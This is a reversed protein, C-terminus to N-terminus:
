TELLDLDRQPLLIQVELKQLGKTSNDFCGDNTPNHDSPRKSALSYRGKYHNSIVSLKNFLSKLQSGSTYCERDLHDENTPKEHKHLGHHEEIRGKLEFSANSRLPRFNLDDDMVPIIDGSTDRVLQSSEGATVMGRSSANTDSPFSRYSTSFPNSNRVRHLANETWSTNRRIGRKQKFALTNRSEGKSSLRPASSQRLSAVGYKRAPATKLDNSAALDSNSNPTNTAFKNIRPPFPKQQKDGGFVNSASRKIASIKRKNALTPQQEQCSKKLNIIKNAHVLARSQAKVLRLEKELSAIRSNDSHENEQTMSPQKKRSVVGIEETRRADDSETKFGGGGRNSCLQKLLKGRDKVLLNSQARVATIERSQEDIVDLLEHIDSRLEKNEGSLYTGEERLSKLLQDLEGDTDDGSKTSTEVFVMEKLIEGRDKVLSNRQARVATIERSQEDIVDLLENIDSRLDKNEGSLYTGEERLSKLLQDLESDTDDGNKPSTDVVAM